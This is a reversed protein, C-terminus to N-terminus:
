AKAEHQHHWNTCSLNRLIANVADITKALAPSLQVLQRVDSRLQEIGFIRIHSWNAYTPQHFSLYPQDRNYQNFYYHLWEHNNLKLMLYAKILQKTMLGLNPVLIVQTKWNVSSRSRGNSGHFLNFNCFNYILHNSPCTKKFIWFHHRSCSSCSTSGNITITISYLRLCLSAIFNSNFFLDVWNQNMRNNGLSSIRIKYTYM